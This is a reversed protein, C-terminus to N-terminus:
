LWVYDISSKITYHICTYDLIVLNVISWLVLLVLTPIICNM